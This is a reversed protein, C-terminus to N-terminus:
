WRTPAAGVLRCENVPNFPRNGFVKGGLRIHASLDEPQMCVDVHWIENTSCTLVTVLSSLSKTPHRKWSLIQVFKGRLNEDKVDAVEIMGAPQVRAM